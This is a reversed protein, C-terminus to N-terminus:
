YVRFSMEVPQSTNVFKGDRVAPLFVVRRAAEIAKEDLVDDLSRTVTVEGIFGDSRFEVLLM